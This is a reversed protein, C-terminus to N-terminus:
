VLAIITLDHKKLADLGFLKWSVQYLKEPTYTLVWTFSYAQSVLEKATTLQGVLCCTPKENATWSFTGTSVGVDLPVVVTKSKYNDGISLNNTISKSLDELYPNLITALRKVVDRSESPFDESVIKKFTTIKM